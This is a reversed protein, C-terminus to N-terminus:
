ISASSSVGSVMAATPASVSLILNSVSQSNLPLSDKQKKSALASLLANSASQRPSAEDTLSKQRLEGIELALVMAAGHM